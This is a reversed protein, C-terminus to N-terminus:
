SCLADKNANKKEEEKRGINVITIDHITSIMQVIRKDKWVQVMIDGGDPLDVAKKELTQM